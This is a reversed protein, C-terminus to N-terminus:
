ISTNKNQNTLYVVRHGSKPGSNIVHSMYYSAYTYREIKIWQLVIRFKMKPGTRFVSPPGFDVNSCNLWYPSRKSKSNRNRDVM